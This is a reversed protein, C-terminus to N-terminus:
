DCRWESAPSHAHAGDCCRGEDGALFREPAAQFRAFCGSCRFRLIRDLYRATIGEGAPIQSGCVVCVAAPQGRSDVLVVGAAGAM